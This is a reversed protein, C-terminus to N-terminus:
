CIYERLADGQQDASKGSFSSSPAMSRPMHVHLHVSAPFKAGCACLDRCCKQSKQSGVEVQSLREFV